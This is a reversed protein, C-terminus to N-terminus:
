IVEINIFNVGYRTAKRDKLDKTLACTRGAKLTEVLYFISSFCGVYDVYAIMLVVLVTSLWPMCTCDNANGICNIVM